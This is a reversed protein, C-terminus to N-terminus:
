VGLHNILEKEKRMLFLLAFLIFLAQFANFYTLNLGLNLLTQQVAYYAATGVLPILPGAGKKRFLMKGIILATISVLVLGFGMMLDVFGNSLAFLYGSLGALLDAIVIGSIVVFKTSIGHHQFFYPNSGYVALANGLRSRLLWFAGALSMLAVMALAILEGEGFMLLPNNKGSLSLISSGLTYQIVGHFLGNTIVAALLFPVRLVQNLLSAVGGVAMGGGMAALFPIPFPLHATQAAAAAGFVYAAEISLDPVKLLSFSIYAGLILPFIILIQEIM